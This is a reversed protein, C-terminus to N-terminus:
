LISYTLDYWSLPEANSYQKKPQINDEDIRNREVQNTPRNRRDDTKLLKRRAHHKHSVAM